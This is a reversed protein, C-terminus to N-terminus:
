QSESSDSNCHLRDGPTNHVILRLVTPSIPVDMAAIALFKPTPVDAMAVAIFFSSWPFIFQITQVVNREGLIGPDIKERSLPCTGSEM